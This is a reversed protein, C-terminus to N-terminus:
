EDMYDSSNTHALRLRERLQWTIGGFGAGAPGSDEVPISDDDVGGALVFFAPGTEGALDVLREGFAMEFGAEAPLVLEDDGVNKMPFVIGGLDAPEGKAFLFEVAVDDTLFTELWEGPDACPEGAQRGGADWAGDAGGSM